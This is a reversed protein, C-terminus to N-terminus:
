LNENDNSTEIDTTRMKTQVDLRPGVCHLKHGLAGHIQVPHQKTDVIFYIFIM